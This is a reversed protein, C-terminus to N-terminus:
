VVPIDLLRFLDCNWMLNNGKTMIWCELTVGPWSEMNFQSGPDHNWTSNHGSDLYSMSNQGQIRRAWFEVAVFPVDYNLSFDMSYQSCTPIWHLPGFKIKCWSYCVSLWAQDSEIHFYLLLTICMFDPSWSCIGIYILGGLNFVFRGYIYDNTM